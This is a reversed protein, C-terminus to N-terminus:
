NREHRDRRRTLAERYLEAYAAAAADASFRRAVHEHGQEAIAEALAPDAILRLIAEVLGNEDAPDVLLGTVGPIVVSPISGVRSAIVPVRAALAELLCMPTAEILSPLILIDLSAYVGPMDDRVGAFVVNSSIGLRSALEQWETQCPGDGVFVFATRPHVELVKKACHILLAGGKEPVMRGIFGVLRQRDDPYQSRITPAAFAFRGMDVGNPLAQAGPMGSRRLLDAVPESAAAVGDFGRLLMRDLLAYARMILRRDPWNHCTAVLATGLPWAAARGM